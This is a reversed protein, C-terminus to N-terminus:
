NSTRATVITHTAWAAVAAVILVQPLWLAAYGPGSNFPVLLWLVSGFHFSLFALWGFRRLLWISVLNISLGFVWLKGGSVVVSALLVFLTDAIAVRRFILRLLVLMLIFALSYFVVMEIKGIFSGLAFRVGALGGPSITQPIWSRLFRSTIEGDALRIVTTVTSGALGALIHSATLPDRWRGNILRVWSILTDPWHRRIHPEVAVYLVWMIAAFFGAWCVGMTFLVYEWFEPVHAAVALWQLMLLGFLFFAIRTAGRPDGRSLKLNHRAKWAAIAPLGFYMIGTLITWFLSETEETKQWSFVTAFYVPRGRWAAAEIRLTDPRTDDYRGTWVKREDAFAPPVFRPVGPTLRSPDLGAAALLTNWDVTGSAGEPEERPPNVHLYALRGKVDLELLIGEPFNNAPTYSTINSSTVEDTLFADARLYHPAQRYWFRILSPQQSAIRKRRNVFDHETLYYLYERHASRFGYASDFPTATYGFSKLMQRSQFALADPPHEIPIMGTLTLHPGVLIVAIMVMLVAALCLLATRPRFGEKEASAAVIEPSPTEGAALAAAMPDGGPLAMAVALASSPRNRPDEDLCRLIVVETVPDLEKVLETPATQTDSRRKGTFMEYLVMGLSYIDSRITVERGARQEPSMYAPTGSRLDTLPVDASLAALGFDTIRVHGRGDIMVNAPKLDRHLVGREHAAALGACLRRTIDIAKDQPLRGIRRLLSDLDEGDVYEMSLYHMGDVIGIDYVRCVNPHSVQRALRVENRFRALAAENSSTTESLFKLAVTQNLVLDFARYVEGMGGRGLLGLIRYRQALVTAIPFRGEEPASSSPASTYLPRTPDTTGAPESSM